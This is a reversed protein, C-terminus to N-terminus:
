DIVVVEMSGGSLAIAGTGQSGRLLARALPGGSGPTSRGAPQAAQPAPQRAQPAQSQLVPQPGAAGPPWLAAPLQVTAATAATDASTAVIVADLPSAPAVSAAQLQGSQLWAALAGSSSRQARWRALGKKFHAYTLGQLSNVQHAVVGLRQAATINPSLDDFFLMDQPEVCSNMAIQQLHQRKSAPYIEILTRDIGGSDRDPAILGLAALLSVCVERASNTSAVGLRIGASKLEHVLAHAETFPKAIFGSGCCVAPVPHPQLQHPLRYRPDAANFPWLTQDLDIVVVRPMSGVAQPDALDVVDRLSQPPRAGAPRRM